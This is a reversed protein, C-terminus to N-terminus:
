LFVKWASYTLHTQLNPPSKLPSQATLSLPPPESLSELTPFDTLANALESLSECFWSPSVPSHLQGPGHSGSLGLFSDSLGALTEEVGAKDSCM